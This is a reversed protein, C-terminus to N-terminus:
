QMTMVVRVVACCRQSARPRTFARCGECLQCRTSLFAVACRPCPTVVAGDRVREVLKGSMGDHVSVVFVCWAFTCVFCVPLM